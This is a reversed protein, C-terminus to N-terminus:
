RPGVSFGQRYQVVVPVRTVGPGTGIVASAYSPKLNTISLRPNRSFGAGDNWDSSRSNNVDHRVAVAYRGAAPLGVCVDVTRATVPLDVRRIRKGSQLWTASSNFVYLRLSGRQPSLGSISVLLAPGQGSVCRAADPGRPAAFAPQALLASAAALSLLFRSVVSM